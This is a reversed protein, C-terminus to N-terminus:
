NIVSSIEQNIKDIDIAKIEDNNMNYKMKLSLIRYLSEDIRDKSIEGKIVADKISNLVTIENDVGHCVLVIDSGANIAKVAVQGIEYNEAIAGMTLDDTIVVGKFDLQNRLIDIIIIKSFSAPNQSDIKNFLIHATMVVDCDNNIAEIFPILEFQKIEDLDKEILPLNLHSDVLTDGHGPFHKVVSIIEESQMGKMTAVGLEKVIVEDSGFARAGIVPNNPNSNIDLVPAFNMNFGFAKIEKAIIKGINYSFDKDNREGISKSNPLALLEAPMRSVLGGEEDVSIFLPINNENAKKLSNILDLLQTSNQVNRKFLIVGGIYYDKIMKETLENLTYGEFGVIVLQGIKEELTMTDIKEKIPDTEEETNNEETPRIEEDNNNEEQPIEEKAKDIIDKDYSGEHSYSSCGLCFTLIVIILVGIKKYM